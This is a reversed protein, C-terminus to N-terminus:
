LQITLVCNYHQHVLTFARQCNEKHTLDNEDDVLQLSDPCTLYQTEYREAALDGISVYFNDGKQSHSTGRILEPATDKLYFYQGQDIDYVVLRGMASGYIVRNLSLDLATIPDAFRTELLREFKFSM